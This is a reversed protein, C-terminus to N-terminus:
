RGARVRIEAMSGSFYLAEVPLDDHTGDLIDRCGRLADSLSVHSGPRKTYPEAVFFPQAFFNQLKRARELLLPDTGMLREEDAARLAAIAERARGAIAAHEDGVAKSELLRSRSTLVDVGPYIKAKIMDRSLHILTDAPEFAALRDATWPGGESRLFFTQVAGVTGESYGDKKLVESISWGAPQDPWPPMLTFLSVRDAGGSLRRVLEETVVTIGVGVEGVIAVSGGAALPCMVDIVKIGTEVLRGEGKAIQSPGALLPVIREFV